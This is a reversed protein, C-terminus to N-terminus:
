MRFHRLFNIVSIIKFIFIFTYDHEWLHSLQGMFFASCWLVSAKLSTNSFVRWLGKSACLDFCDIKFSILGSYDKSPSISFSWYKPWRIWVASENYFIRISPFISPLLLLSHCLIPHNSTMVSEVSMFKPLSRSITLSLSAQHTATCPTM